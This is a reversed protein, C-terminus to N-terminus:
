YMLNRYPVTHIGVLSLQITSPEVTKVLAWATYTSWIIFVRLCHQLIGQIPRGMKSYGFLCVSGPFRSIYLDSVSVYIYSNTVLGRLKM